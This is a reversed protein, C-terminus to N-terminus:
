DNRQAEFGSALKRRLLKGNAGMPMEALHVYLRPQKYRALRTEVYRRLVADDLPVPGAYFAAAALGRM